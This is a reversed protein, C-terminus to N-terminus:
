KLNGTRFPIIQLVEEPMNVTLQASVMVSTGEFDFIHKRVRPKYNGRGLINAYLKQRNVSATFTRIDSPLFELETIADGMPVSLVNINNYVFNVSAVSENFSLIVGDKLISMVTLTMIYYNSDPELVISFRFNCQETTFSDTKYLGQPEKQSFAVILIICIIAINGMVLFHTTKRKKPMKYKQTSELREAIRERLRESTRYGPGSTPFKNM